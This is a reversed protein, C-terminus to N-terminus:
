IQRCLSKDEERLYSPVKAEIQGCTQYSEQM